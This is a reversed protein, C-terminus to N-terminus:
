TDLSGLITDFKAAYSKAGDSLMRKNAPLDRTLNSLLEFLSATPIIVEAVVRRQEVMNQTVAGPALSPPLVTHLTLRSNPYGIAVNSVGDAYFEQLDDPLHLDFAAAPTRVNVVEAM